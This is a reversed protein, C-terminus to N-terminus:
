GGPGPSGDRTEESRPEGVPALRTGETISRLHLSLRGIIPIDSEMLVLLRRPDDSFFLEAEGGEGFLGSSRIIPQVVVTPFTGAPVRVTQKRLVRLIVPNGSEKFYRNFTYEEGVELPLTRIFYFFSIQDLPESTPMDGSNGNDEREWTRTEPFFEFHKYRERGLQKTDEMSRLTVLNAVDFWSKFHDKVKAFLFGGEYAMTVRYTTRGRVTELGDVSMFGEGKKGLFGLKVDYELLEGLGFPVQMPPDIKTTVSDMLEPVQGTLAERGFGILGTLLAVLIPLRARM